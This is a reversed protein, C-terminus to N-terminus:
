FTPRFADALSRIQIGAQLVSLSAESEVHITVPVGPLLDVYNDSYPADQEGFSLYVSRALVPSKLTVDFGADTKMVNMVNADIYPDLLVIRKTPMFYLLNSSVLVGGQRLEAVAVLKTPDTGTDLLESLPTKL